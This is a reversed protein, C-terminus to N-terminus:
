LPEPDDGEVFHGSSTPLVIRSRSLPKQLPQFPGETYNWETKASYGQVQGQCVHEYIRRFQGDDFSDGLKSFLDQVFRAADEDSLNALFKFTLDNRSGYSFSKRFQEFSEQQTEEPM